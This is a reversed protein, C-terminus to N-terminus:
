RGSLFGMIVESAARLDGSVEVTDFGAAEFVETTRHPALDLPPDSLESCPGPADPIFPALKSEASGGTALCRVRDGVDGIVVVTADENLDQALRRSGLLGGGVEAHEAGLAVFQVRHDPAAVALARALELLLGVAAGGQAEDTRTDYAAVVAVRAPASSPPRAVVNTSRVLNGVPVADLFVVYGARQLHATIYVSAAQEEQSGAARPGVEEDLEREHRLAVEPEVTPAGSPRVEPPSERTGPSCAILVTM